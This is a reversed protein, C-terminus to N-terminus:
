ANQISAPCPCSVVAASLLFTTQSPFRKGWVCGKEQLEGTRPERGALQQKSPHAPLPPAATLHLYEEPSALIILEQQLCKTNPASFAQQPHFLFVFSWHRATAREATNRIHFLHHMQKVHYCYHNTYAPCGYQVPHLLQVQQPKITSQLTDQKSFM